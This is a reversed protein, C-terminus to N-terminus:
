HRSLIARPAYVRSCVVVPSGFPRVFHRLTIFSFTVHLKGIGIFFFVFYSNIVLPDSRVILIAFNQSSVEDLYRDVLIMKLSFICISKISANHPASPRKSSAM